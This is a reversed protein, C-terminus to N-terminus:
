KAAYNGFVPFKVGYYLNTGAIEELLMMAREQVSGSREFVGRGTGRMGWSHATGEDLYPLIRKTYRPKSLKRLAAAEVQRVREPSVGLNEGCEKLTLAQENGYRSRIVASERPELDDVCSWLEASLQEHQMRELAEEIPDGAAALTDGLTLDDDEGGIPESTSRIRAAQIDKKLDKLQDKTIDLAACLERDSPDRGFRVRYSNRTRHYRGIQVRKYSPIRVVGGCNDIYRSIAARIWYVAYTTFVSEREPKWLEAAKVLGFYSEQRLDDLEEVGSYCRIIREILGSNQLYLQELAARSSTEQYQIVLEENSKMYYDREPTTHYM